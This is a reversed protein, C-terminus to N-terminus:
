RGGNWPTGKGWTMTDGGVSPTVSAISLKHSLPTGPGPTPDFVSDARSEEQSIAASSRHHHHHHHNGEITGWMGDMYMDGPLTPRYAGHGQHPGLHHVPPMGRSHTAHPDVPMNLPMFDGKPGGWTMHGFSDQPMQPMMKRQENSVAKLFKRKAGIKTIGMEQLDYETIAFLVELSDVENAIIVDAYKGLSNAALWERVSTESTM